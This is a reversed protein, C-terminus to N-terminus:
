PARLRAPVRGLLRRVCGAVAEAGYGGPLAGLLTLRSIRETLTVAASANREGIM